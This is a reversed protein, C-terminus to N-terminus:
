GEDEAKDRLYGLGSINTSGAGNGSIAGKMGTAQPVRMQHNTPKQNVVANQGRSNSPGQAVCYPQLLSYFM